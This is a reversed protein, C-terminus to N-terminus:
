LWNNVSLWFMEQQNHNKFLISEQTSHWHIICIIIETIDQDEVKYKKFFQLFPSNFDKLSPLLQIM